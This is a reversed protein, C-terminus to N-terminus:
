MIQAAGTTFYILHIPKDIEIGEPVAIVQVEEALAGNLVAFPGGQSRSLTGQMHKPKEGVKLRAM